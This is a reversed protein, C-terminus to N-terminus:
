VYGEMVEYLVVHAITQIQVHVTAVQLDAPLFRELITAEVGCGFGNEDNMAPRYICFFSALLM